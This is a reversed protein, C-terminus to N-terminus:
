LDYQDFYQKIKIQRQYRNLPKESNKFWKGYSFSFNNKKYFKKQPIQYFGQRYTWTNKKTSFNRLIIRNM